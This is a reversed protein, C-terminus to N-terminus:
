SSGPLQPKDSTIPTDDTQKPDQPPPKTTTAHKQVDHSTKQTGKGSSVHPIQISSTSSSQGSQTQSSSASSASSSSSTTTTKQKKASTADGSKTSDESTNKRKMTQQQQQEKLMTQNTSQLPTSTTEKQTINM